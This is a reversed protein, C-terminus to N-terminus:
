GRVVYALAAKYAERDPFLETPAYSWAKVRGYTDTQAPVVLGEAVLADRVAKVQSPRHFRPPHSIGTMPKSVVAYKVADPFGWRALMAGVLRPGFDLGSGRFPNRTEIRFAQLLANHTADLNPM